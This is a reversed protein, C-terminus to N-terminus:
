TTRYYNLCWKLLSRLITPLKKEAIFKTNQHLFILPACNLFKLVMAIDKLHMTNNLYCDDRFRFWQSMLVCQIMLYTIMLAANFKYVLLDILPQIKYLRNNSTATNNDSFHLVSLLLEFRNKMVPSASSDDEFSSNDDENNWNSDEDTDDFSSESYLNLLSSIENRNM